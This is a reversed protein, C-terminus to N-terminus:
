TWSEPFQMFYRTFTTCYIDRLLCSTRFLIWHPLPNRTELGGNCPIIHCKFSALLFKSERHQLHMHSFKVILTVYHELVHIYAHLQGRLSLLGSRVKLNTETSLSYLPSHLTHAFSPNDHGKSPNFIHERPSIPPWSSGRSAWSAASNRAMYKETVARCQHYRCSKNKGVFTELKYSIICALM